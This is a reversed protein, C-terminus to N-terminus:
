PKQRGAQITPKHFENRGLAWAIGGALHRIFDADEYHEIQHGLATYWQRGGEFEQYWCLPFVDGFVRGPYRDKEADEITTLDAALLVHIGPNLENMFYCEDEWAWTKPLHRTSPHDADVVRIEFPQLKPHRVFKGGLNAWFWPWSRESGCVSHIGVFGGGARIYERFVERQADTDFTENNTNSFVLVDFGSIKGPTFVAADDTVEYAWGHAACIKKLCDVSAKINEHVYGTGNKTYILVTAAAPLPATSDAPAPRCGASPLVALVVALAAAIGFAAQCFKEM